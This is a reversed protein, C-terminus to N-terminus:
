FKFFNKGYEMVYDLRDTKVTLEPSQGFVISGSPINEDKVFANASIIVDDGIQCDGVVKSDSLMYVRSGFRPYIGHNNGVTCGQTFVFFDAYSARGIISGFPHDFMFIDPLQVQYFMDCGSVARLLAYIKSSLPVDDRGEIYIERSLRYLLVAWQSGHLPDFRPTGSADSYYKNSIHSFCREIWELSSILHNEILDVECEDIPYFAMLQRLLLDRILRESPAILM